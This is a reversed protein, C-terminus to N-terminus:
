IHARIHLRVVRICGRVMTVSRCRKQRSSTDDYCKWPFYFQFKLPQRSSLPTEVLDDLYDGRSEMGVSSDLLNVVDIKISQMNGDLKLKLFNFINEERVIRKFM